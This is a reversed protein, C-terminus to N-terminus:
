NQEATNQTTQKKQMTKLKQLRQKQNTKQWTNEEHMYRRSHCQIAWNHQHATLFRSVWERGVYACAASQRDTQRHMHRDTGHRRTAQFRLAISLKNLNQPTIVSSMRLLTVVNPALLYGSIYICLNNKVFLYSHFSFSWVSMLIIM